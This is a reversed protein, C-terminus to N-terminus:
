YGTPTDINLWFPCLFGLANFIGGIEILIVCFLGLYVCFLRVCFAFDHLDLVEVSLGSM